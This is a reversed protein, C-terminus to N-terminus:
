KKEAEKEAEKLGDIIQQVTVESPDFVYAIAFEKYHVCFGKGENIEVEFKM